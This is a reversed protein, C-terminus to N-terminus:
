LLDACVSVLEIQNRVGLRERLKRLQNDVTNPSKHLERAIEKYSLGLAALRVVAREAASLSHPDASRCSRSAVMIPSLFSVAFQDLYALDSDRWRRHEETQDVCIIGFCRGGQELRRALKVRTRIHDLSPRLDHVMADRHVDIYITRKSRWVFQLARHRNPLELGTVDPIDCDARSQMACAQYKQDSPSGFGFDARTADFYDLLHQLGVQFMMQPEDFYLLMHAGCDVMAPPAVGRHADLIARRLKLAASELRV